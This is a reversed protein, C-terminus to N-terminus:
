KILIEKQSCIDGKLRYAVNLTQTGDKETKVINRDLIECDSLFNKEYIYVKKMLEDTLEEASLETIRSEYETYKNRVICIPLELGFVTVPKSISEMECIEYNNRGLYLPIDLNLLLVRRRIDTKGTPIKREQEFTGSFSAEDRFIGIITGMAHHLTTHGTADSTVGSVLMDGKLVYDDVKHMLMGDLVTTYVIKADHSAILNCPIRSHLMEPKEVIETVEVVLRHGTRHMGAWSLGDVTIQLQNECSIYNIQRFPTGKRVGMEDLASLIVEDSVKENGQIDITVVVSSFYVSAAIVLIMGIIIGFRKRRRIIKASVTEYEFCSLELGHERAIREICCIDSRYIEASFCDRKVYQSFCSIRNDHVANIFGYLDRGKVNIKVCGRIQNKM